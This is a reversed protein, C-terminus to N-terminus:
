FTNEWFTCKKLDAQRTIHRGLPFAWWWNALFTCETHAQSHEVLEGTNDEGQLASTMNMPVFRSSGGKQMNLIIWVWFDADGGHHNSKGWLSGSRRSKRYRRRSVRLKGSWAGGVMWNLHTPQRSLTGSRGYMTPGAGSLWSRPPRRGGQVTSMVQDSQRPTAQQAGTRKHGYVPTTTAGTEQYASRRSHM